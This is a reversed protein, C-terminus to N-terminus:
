ARFEGSQLSKEARDQKVAALGTKASRLGSISAKAAAKGMKGKRALTRIKLLKAVDGLPILSIASIGANIAHRKVESTEKKRANNLMRGLSIVINAADAITGVSPEIGILDLALQLKDVPDMRDIIDKKDKSPNTKEVLLDFKPTM